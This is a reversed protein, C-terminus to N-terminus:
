KANQPVDDTGSAEEAAESITELSPEGELHDTDAPLQPMTSEVSDAGIPAVVASCDSIIQLADDAEDFGSVTVDVSIPAPVFEGKRQRQLREFQIMDQSLQRNISTAYRGTRDISLFFEASSRAYEAEYGYVVHLRYYGIAIKELLMEELTGEPQWDERLNELLNDFTARESENRTFLRKALLGHQLANWRSRSKGDATRPGTSKRANRRNAAIRAPSTTKASKTKETESRQQQARASVDDTPRSDPRNDNRDHKM